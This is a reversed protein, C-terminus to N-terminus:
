NTDSGRRHMRWKGNMRWCINSSTFEEGSSPRPTKPFTNLRAPGPSVAAHEVPPPGPDPLSALPPHRDVTDQPSYNFVCPSASHGPEMPRRIPTSAGSPAPLPMGALSGSISLGDKAKFSPGNFPPTPVALLSRSAKNLRPHPLPVGPGACPPATLGRLPHPHSCAKGLDQPFHLAPSPPVRFRLLSTFPAVKSGVGGTPGGKVGKM